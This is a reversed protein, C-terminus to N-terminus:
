RGNIGLIMSITKWKPNHDAILKAIGVFPVFLIMGALGWLIGGVFIAVLMVLTNVNLRSSVAFPFIVNAELYQVFAFLAIIGVPYWVSDYTIWAIAMPLLSGVMIGIYPIFTLVSAIFGFLIAHPVGMLLLGISNLIGVVLYVIAMGKIFNYYTAITLSIINHLSEDSEKPFLRQVIKMWNRRYYLILFSYVPILVLLVASFASTTAMSKIFSFINGTSQNSLQSFWERQRETSIGFVQSLLGSIEQTSKTFKEQLAPWENLFTMFQFILLTVVFLGAIVLLSISIIIALLRGVGKKEMWVCVPYLVFSILVAFSIPVLVDKGFYLIVSGFVVYQLAHLLQLEARTSTRRNNM